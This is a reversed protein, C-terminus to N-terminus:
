QKKQLRSSRILKNICALFLYLKNENQTNINGFYVIM